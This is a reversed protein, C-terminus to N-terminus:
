IVLLWFWPKAVVLGTIYRKHRFFFYPLSDTMSNNRTTIAKSNSPLPQKCFHNEDVFPRDTGTQGDRKGECIYPM